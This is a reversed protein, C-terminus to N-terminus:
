TANCTKTERAIANLEDAELRFRAQGIVTSAFFKAMANGTRKRHSAM